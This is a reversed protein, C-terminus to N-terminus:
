PVPGITAAMEERREEGRYGLWARDGALPGTGSTDTTDGIDSRGAGVLSGEVKVALLISLVSLAAVSFGM